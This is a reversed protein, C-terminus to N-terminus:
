KYTSCLQSAPYAPLKACLQGWGHPGWAQYDGWVYQCTHKPRGKGTVVSMVCISSMKMEWSESIMRISGWLSTDKRSHQIFGTKVIQLACKATLIPFLPWTIPRPAPFMLNSRQHTIYALQLYAHIIDKRHIHQEPSHVLVLCAMFEM